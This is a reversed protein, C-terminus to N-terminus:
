IECGGAVCALTEAGKTNDGHENTNFDAFDVVPFSAIRANYDEETITIYPAQQYIHDSYPLFSVGTIDDFNKYVWAAVELWENPRVYITNSINHEAWHTVYTMYHELQEIASINDSMRSASPSKMPFSFVWNNGNTVETEHPVGSSILFDSLPDSKDNRVSRIYYPSFRGHIGSSADVLQSVSGSPKGTTVATSPSIGLIAAWKINTQIATDRLSALSSELLNKDALGSTLSNDMVGTLSVGLLREEEINKTWINRLYRFNTLGSQFTGLIAALEVKERLSEVTDDERIVVESLNCCQSSRLNIEGCNHVLVDNAFFNHNTPNTIDYVDDDDIEEILLSHGTTNNEININKLIDDKTLDQAEVWGRNETWMKHDPTVKVSTGTSTDTIRLLKTKKRTLDAFTIDNFETENNEFNWGKIKVDNGQKYLDVVDIMKMKQVDGAGIIVDVTTDGSVCPNTGFDYNPKRRGLSTIKKKAGARNFMGREGSMSEYLSLWEQMFGGMDPKETYAVSNNALARHPTTEWWQGSKATAMRRDSLNSLSILASNHSVGIGGSPHKATFAHLESDVEIDYTHVSRGKVVSTIRTLKSNEFV